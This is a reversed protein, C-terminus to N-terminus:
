RIGQFPAEPVARRPVYDDNQESKAKQLKLKELQEAERRTMESIICAQNENESQLEKNAAKEVELNERIQSTVKSLEAPQAKLKSISEQLKNLLQRNYDIDESQAAIEEETAFSIQIEVGRRLEDLQQQVLALKAEFEISQSRYENAEDEKHSYDASAELLKERFIREEERQIERARAFMKEFDARTPREELQKTLKVVEAESSELAVTLENVKASTGATLGEPSVTKEQMDTPSSILSSSLCVHSGRRQPAEVWKGHIPGMFGEPCSGPAESGPQNYDVSVTQISSKRPLRQDNMEQKLTVLEERLANVSPQLEENSAIASDRQDKAKRLEEESTNFALKVYANEENLRNIRLELDSNRKGLAANADSGTNVLKEANELLFQLQKNSQELDAIKKGSSEELDDIVANKDSLDAQLSDIEFEFIANRKEAENRDKVAVALQKSLSEIKGELARVTAQRYSEADTEQQRSQAEMRIIEARAQALEDQAHQKEGRARETENAANSLESELSRAKVEAEVAAARTNYLVAVFAMNLNRNGSVIDSPSTFARCNYEGAANLVREARVSLDSEEHIQSQVDLQSATTGAPALYSVLYALALSDSLDVGFTKIPEGSYGAAVISQNLWRLLARESQSSPNAASRTNLGETSGVTDLSGGVPSAVNALLGVKYSSLLLSSLTSVKIIQWVIGLCLHPTAQLIDQPGINHVKVGINKCGNIVQDRILM